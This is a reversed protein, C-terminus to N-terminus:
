WLFLMEGYVPSVPCRRIPQLLLLVRSKYEYSVQNSDRDHCGINKSLNKTANRLGELCIGPTYESWVM